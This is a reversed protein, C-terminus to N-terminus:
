EQEAVFQPMQSLVKLIESVYGDVCHGIAKDESKCKKGTVKSRQACQSFKVFEKSCKGSSIASIVCKVNGSKDNIQKCKEINSFYNFLQPRKKLLTAERHSLEFTELLLSSNVAGQFHPYQPEM